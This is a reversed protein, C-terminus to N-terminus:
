IKVTSKNSKFSKKIEASPANNGMYVSLNIHLM